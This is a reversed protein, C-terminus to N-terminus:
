EDLSLLGLTLGSITGALVVLFISIAVNVWVMVGSANTDCACCEAAPEPAAPSSSAAQLLKRAVFMAALHM